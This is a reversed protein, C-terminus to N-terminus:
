ETSVEWQVHQGNIAGFWNSPDCQWGVAELEIPIVIPAEILTKVFAAILLVYV